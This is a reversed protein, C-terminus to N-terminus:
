NEEEQHKTKNENTKEDVLRSSLHRSCFYSPDPYTKFNTSRWYSTGTCDNHISNLHYRKWETTIDYGTYMSTYIERQNITTTFSDIQQHSHVFTSTNPITHIMIQYIHLVICTHLTFSKQEEHSYPSTKGEEQSPNHQSKQIDKEKM